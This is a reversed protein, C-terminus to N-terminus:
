ARQHTSPGAASGDGDSVRYGRRTVLRGDAVAICDLHTRIEFIALQGFADALELATSRSCGFLAYGEERERGDASRTVAPRSVIGLGALSEALSADRRDNEEAALSEPYPNHATIVWAPLAIGGLLAQLRRHADPGMTGTAMPTITLWRQAHAIEVIAAAYGDYPPGISM